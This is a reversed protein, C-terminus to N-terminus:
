NGLVRKWIAHAVMAAHSESGIENCHILPNDMEEPHARFWAYGLTDGHLITSGNVLSDIVTQMFELRAECSPHDGRWIPYCLLIVYGRSVLDNVTPTICNTWFQQFATDNPGISDNAGLMYAIHTVNNTAFAGIASDYYPGSPIWDPAGSGSVARNTVSVDRIAGTKELLTGIIQPISRSGYGNSLAWISDGIFGLSVNTLVPGSPNVTVTVTDSAAGSDVSLTYVTTETPSVSQYGTLAVTNGNLTASTANNTSWQLLSSEGETIPNPSATLTASPTTNLLSCLDLPNGNNWDEARDPGDLYAGHFTVLDRLTGYLPNSIGGGSSVDAGLYFPRTDRKPTSNPYTVSAVDAVNNVAIGFTGTPSGTLEVWCHFLYEVGVSLAGFTTAAISNATGNYNGWRFVLQTNELSIKLEPVPGVDSWHKVLVTQQGLSQFLVKGRVCFLGGGSSQWDSVGLSVNDGAAMHSSGGDFVRATGTSGVGQNQLVLNGVLDTEDGAGTLPFASVAFTLKNAIM